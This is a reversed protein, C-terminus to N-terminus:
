VPENHSETDTTVHAVSPASQFYRAMAQLLGDGYLRINIDPLKQVQEWFDTAYTSLTPSTIFVRGDCQVRVADDKKKNAPSVHAGAWQKGDESYSCDMAFIRFKRYGMTYLLPIARLGVSGGGTIVHRGSEGYEDVLRVGHNGNAIHWLRIDADPGLKDFLVPSVCSALM